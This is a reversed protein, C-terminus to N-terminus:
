ANYLGQVAVTQNVGSPNYAYFSMTGAVTRAEGGYLPIGSTAGVTSGGVHIPSTNTIPCKIAVSKINAAGLWILTPGGAPVTVFTTDLISDPLVPTGNLGAATGYGLTIIVKQAVTSRIETLNYEPVNFSIEPRVKKWLAGGNFRMEIIGGAQEVAFFNGNINQTWIEADGLGSFNIEYQQQMSGNQPSRADRTIQSPMQLGQGSKITQSLKDIALALKENELVM